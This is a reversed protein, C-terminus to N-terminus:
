GKKGTAKENALRALTHPCDPAMVLKGDKVIYKHQVTGDVYVLNAAGTPASPVAAGVFVREKEETRFPTGKSSEAIAVAPLAVALAALILRNMFDEESV